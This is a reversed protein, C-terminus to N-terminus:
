CSVERLSRWCIKLEFRSCDTLELKTALWSAPCSVKVPSPTSVWALVLAPSDYSFDPWLTLVHRGGFVNGHRPYFIHIDLPVPRPGLDLRWVVVDRLLVFSGSTALYYARSGFKSVRASRDLVSRLSRCAFVASFFLRLFALILM